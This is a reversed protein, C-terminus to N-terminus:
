NGAQNQSSGHAAVCSKSVLKLMRELRSKAPMAALGLDRMSKSVTSQRLRGVLDFEMQFLHGMSVRVPQMGGPIISADLLRRQTDVMLSLRVVLHELRDAAQRTEPNVKLVTMDTEYQTQKM